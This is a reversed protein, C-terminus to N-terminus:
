APEKSEQAQPPKEFRVRLWGEELHAGTASYFALFNPLFFNRRQNKVQIVLEDGYHLVSVEEKAFSPLHIELLFAGDQATLRYPKEKLFVEGPDRDRYLREGLEQLLALGFVEQGLHPVRFIPLPAFAEEIERLYRNQAQRYTEFAPDSSVEPLIRNVIAADVPYGYLQLYSYSRLAEQIVMREPNLVLRISSVEPDCFVEHIKLLRGYLDEVEGYVEEQPFPAGTVARVIPGVVRAVRRQLPFVREMWWQGVQPLSLLTLTEGTPASDIIILDFEGERYFKDVWLFAAGEEMGPLAAMEEALIEDVKQWRFVQLIFNRLTGWYKQISHYVNIEQAWLNAEVEEPEPGLPRDLADALSHAPDASMVLVRHGLESARLATAAAITTKGVGGKGMFLLIRSGKV